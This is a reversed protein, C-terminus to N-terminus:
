NIKFAKEVRVKKARFDHYNGIIESDKVTFTHGKVSLIYTGKPFQSVFSGVTMASYKSGRKTYLKLTKTVTYKNGWYRDTRTSEVKVPEMTIEKVSKGLIESQSLFGHFLFTSVGKRSKRNMKEACLKHSQNYTIDFASAIARVVCDNTESAALKSTKYGKIAKTTAIYNM